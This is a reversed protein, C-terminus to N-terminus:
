QALKTPQLNEAVTKLMSLDETGSSITILYRTGYYLYLQSTKSKKDFFEQAKCGAVMSHASFLAEEDIKKDQTWTSVASQLRESPKRYDFIVISLVSSGKTYKKAALFYPANDQSLEAGYSDVDASFGLLSAPLWNKLGDPSTITTQAVAWHTAVLFLFLILNKM